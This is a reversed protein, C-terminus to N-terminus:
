DHRPRNPDPNTPAAYGDLKLSRTLIFVSGPFLHDQQRLILIFGGVRLENRREAHSRM